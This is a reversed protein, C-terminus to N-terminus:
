GADQRIRADLGRFGPATRVAKRDRDHRVLGNKVLARLAARFRRKGLGCSRRLQKRGIAGREGLLTGLVVLQDRDVLETREGGALAATVVPDRHEETPRLDITVREGASSAAAGDETTGPRELPRADHGDLARRREDRIEDHLLEQELAALDGPDYPVPLGFERFCRWESRRPHRAVTVRHEECCAFVIWALARRSGLMETLQQDLCTYTNCLVSLQSWTVYRASDGTLLAAVERAETVFPHGADDDIGIREPDDLLQDDTFASLPMLRLSNAWPDLTDTEAALGEPTNEFLKNVKTVGEWPRGSSGGSSGDAIGTSRRALAGIGNM